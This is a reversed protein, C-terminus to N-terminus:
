SKLSKITKAKIDTGHGFANVATWVYSYIIILLKRLKEVRSNLKVPTKHM